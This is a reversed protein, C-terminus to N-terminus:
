PYGAEEAALALKEASYVECRVHYRAIFPRREGEPALRCNANIICDKGLLQSLVVFISFYSVDM